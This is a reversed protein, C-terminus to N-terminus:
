EDPVEQEYVLKYDFVPPIVTPSPSNAGNNDELDNLDYERYGDLMDVLTLVGADHIYIRIGENEMLEFAKRARKMLPHNDKLKFKKRM